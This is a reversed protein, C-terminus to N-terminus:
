GRRVMGADHVRLQLLALNLLPTDVGLEQARRVFDGVIHEGEHPLGATVDRYLSSTFLSGPATLFALSGALEEASVPFGSAASMAAAEALVAEIFDSGGPYQVIDGVPGRMLCTVTAATAIFVWKEWMTALGNPVAVATIGPVTIEALLAQVRPSLEGTKGADQEGITWRSIPNFVEIDRDHNITGVLHVVSGLVKEAGFAAALADMHAMGNIFPVIITNPGVAPALDAIARALASAKVTLVVVDFTEQLQGATLLKPEIRLEPDIGLIRLGRAALFQARKEHVLFTVDRGAAALRAGFYAGTAGAGVILIKM